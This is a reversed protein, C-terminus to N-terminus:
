ARATESGAFRKKAACWAAMVVPGMAPVVGVEPGGGGREEVVEEVAVAVSVDVVEVFEEGDGVVGADEYRGAVAAGAAGGEVQSSDGEVVGELGVFGEVEVEGAAQQSTEKKM